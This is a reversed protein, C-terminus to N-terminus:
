TVYARSSHYYPALIAAAAGSVKLIVFHWIIFDQYVDYHWLIILRTTMSQRTLYLIYFKL